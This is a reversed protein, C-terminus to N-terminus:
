TARDELLKPEANAGSEQYDQIELDIMHLMMTLDSVQCQLAVSTGMLPCIM